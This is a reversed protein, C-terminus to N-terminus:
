PIASAEAAARDAVRACSRARARVASVEGLYPVLHDRVCRGYSVSTTPRRTPESQVLWDTLFEGVAPGPEGAAVQAAEDELEVLFRREAAAASTKTRYGGRWVQRRGRGDPVWTVFSWSRGRRMVTM